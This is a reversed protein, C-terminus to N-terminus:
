ALPRVAGDLRRFSYRRLNMYDEIIDLMRTMQSFILVQHGGEARLGQMLRDLLQMKGSAAVLMEDMVETAVSLLAAM